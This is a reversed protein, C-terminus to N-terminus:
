KGKKKLFAPFPKKGEPKGGKDPKAKEFPVFPKKAM